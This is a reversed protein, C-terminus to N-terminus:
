HKVKRYKALLEGNPSWVTCTNYLNNNSNDREPISGGILYINLEKAISSLAMSTEGDPVNEAYQAFYQTGYPSNFCEPLGVIRPKDNAVTKRILECAHEINEQKNNGVHM